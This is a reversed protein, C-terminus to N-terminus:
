KRNAAVIENLTINQNRFRASNKEKKLRISNSPCNHTCSLCSMCNEGFIPKKDRLQVNNLPCVKVCTGCAVCSDQAMFDKAVGAGIALKSSGGYMGTMLGRIFGRAQREVKM